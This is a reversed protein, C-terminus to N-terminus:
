TQLDNSRLRKKATSRDFSQHNIELRVSKGAKRFFEIIEENSKGVLLEAQRDCINRVLEVAKIKTKGRM